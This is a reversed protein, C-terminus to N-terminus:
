LAILPTQEPLEAEKRKLFPKLKTEQAREHSRAAFGNRQKERPQPLLPSFGLFAALWPPLLFNKSLTGGEHKQQAIVDDGYLKPVAVFSETSSCAAEQRGVNDGELFQEVM